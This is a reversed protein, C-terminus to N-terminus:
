PEISLCLRSLDGGLEAELRDGPSLSGLGERTGTFVLNGPGLAAYNRGVGYIMRIPTLLGLPIM